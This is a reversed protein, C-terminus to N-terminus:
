MLLIGLLLVKIAVACLFSVAVAGTAVTNLPVSCSAFVSMKCCDCCDFCCCRICVVAGVSIVGM